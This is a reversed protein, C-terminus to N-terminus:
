AVQETSVTDRTKVISSIITWTGKSTDLVDTIGDSDSLFANPDQNWLQNLLASYIVGDSTQFPRGKELIYAKWANIKGNHRNRRSVAKHKATESKRMIIGKDNLNRQTNKGRSGDM